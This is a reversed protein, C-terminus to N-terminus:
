KKRRFGTPTKGTKKKFLKSFYYVSCFGLNFSIEKVNLDTNTLLYAAQQMRLSVHYQVPSLGTYTKFAKRFLSYSIDFGEALEEVNLNKDLNERIFLCAKQIAKEVKNNNLGKNKRIAMIHGLIQIVLGSCIQQYGPKETKVINLIQQFLLLIDDDFGIHVLLVDSYFEYNDFLQQAFVGNFGVYHEKWGKNKLPKYRHWQEPKLIIVSGEKIISEGSTTEIVGEGETIYNIQYEHL